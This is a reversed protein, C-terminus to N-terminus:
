EYVVRENHSVQSRMCERRPTTAQHALLRLREQNLVVISGRQIRVIDADQWDQLTRGVVERATGVVAALEQQTLRHARCRECPRQEQELLLRAIREAVHHFSLDEVLTVMERLASALHQVAAQAVAPHVAMFRRLVGSPITYVEGPEIAAATTPSPGGALAAVINFIQGAAMLRLVQERGEESITSLKIVGSRVYGLPGDQEGEVTIVEGRQYYRVQTITQLYALDAPGLAAFLPLQRLADIDPRRTMPVDEEPTLRRPVSRKRLLYTVDGVAVTVLMESEGYFLSM